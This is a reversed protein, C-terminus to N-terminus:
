PRGVTRERTSCRRWNIRFGCVVCLTPMAGVHGHHPARSRLTLPCWVEWSLTGALLWTVTQRTGCGGPSPPPEVELFALALGQRMSKTHLAGSSQGTSDGFTLHCHPVSPCVKGHSSIHCVLKYTVPPVSNSRFLCVGGEEM